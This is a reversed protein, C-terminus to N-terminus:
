FLTNPSCSKFLEHAPVLGSHATLLFVHPWFTLVLTKGSHSHTTTGPLRATGWWTPARRACLWYVKQRRAVWPEMTGGASTWSSVPCCLTESLDMHHLQLVHRKADSMAHCTLKWDPTLSTFLLLQVTDISASHYPLCCPSCDTSSWVIILLVTETMLPISLREGAYMLITIVSMKVAAVSASPRHAIHRYHKCFKGTVYIWKLLM